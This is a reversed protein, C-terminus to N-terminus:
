VPTDGDTGKGIKQFESLSAKNITFADKQMQFIPDDLNDLPKHHPISALSFIYYM